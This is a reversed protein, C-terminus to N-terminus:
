LYINKHPYSCVPGIYMYLWEQKKLFCQKAYVFPITNNCIVFVTTQNLSFYFFKISTRTLLCAISLYLQQFQYFQILMFTTYEAGELIQESKAEIQIKTLLNIKYFLLLEMKSMKWDFLTKWNQLPSTENSNNKQQPRQQM